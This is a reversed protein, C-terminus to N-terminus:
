EASGSDKDGSTIADHAAFVVDMDKSRLKGAKYSAKLIDVADMLTAYRRSESVHDDHLANYSTCLSEKEVELDEIHQCQADNHDLLTSPDPPSPALGQGEAYADVILEEVEVKFNEPSLLKSKGTM